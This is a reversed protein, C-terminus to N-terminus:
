RLEAWTGGATGVSISYTKGNQVVFSVSSTGDTSSFGARAVAVGDVTATIAAWNNTVYASYVVLIPRGTTNTYTTGLVRSATVNKWTQASSGLGSNRNKSIGM